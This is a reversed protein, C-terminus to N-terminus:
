LKDPRQTTFLQGLIVDPILATGLTLKCNATTHQSASIRTACWLIICHMVKTGTAMNCYVYIPGDDGIGQRDPDIWYMVSPLSQNTSRAERCTRPIM